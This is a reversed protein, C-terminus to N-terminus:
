CNCLLNANTGGLLILDFLPWLILPSFYSVDRKFFISNNGGIISGRNSISAASLVCWCCQQLLDFTCIQLYWRIYLGYACISLMIMKRGATTSIKKINVGWQGAYIPVCQCLFQKIGPLICVSYCHLLVCFLPNSGNQYISYAVKSTILCSTNIYKGVRNESKLLFIDPFHQKDSLVIKPLFLEIKPCEVFVKPKLSLLILCISGNQLLQLVISIYRGGTYDLELM